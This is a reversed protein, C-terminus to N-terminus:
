EVRSISKVILAAAVAKLLKYRIAFPKHGLASALSSIALLRHDSFLLPLYFGRQYLSKRSYGALYEDLRNRYLRTRVLINLTATWCPRLPACPQPTSKCTSAKRSALVCSAAAKLM